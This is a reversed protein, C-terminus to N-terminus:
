KKPKYLTFRWTIGIDFNHIRDHNDRFWVAHLRLNDGGLPFFEVGAGYYFYDNGAPLVLDYSEGNADVNAADNREYGVKTCLNWKGM